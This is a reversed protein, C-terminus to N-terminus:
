GSGSAGVIAVYSGPKISLNLGRLVRVGPRTALTWLFAM